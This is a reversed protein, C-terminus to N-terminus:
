LANKIPSPNQKVSNEQWGLCRCEGEGSQNSPPTGPKEMRSKAAPSICSCTIHSRSSTPFLTSRPGDLEARRQLRHHSFSPDVRCSEVGRGANRLSAETLHSLGGAQCLRRSMMQSRRPRKRVTPEEVVMTNINPFSKLTTATLLLGCRTRRSPSHQMVADKHRPFRRSLTPTKSFSSMELSVPELRVPM